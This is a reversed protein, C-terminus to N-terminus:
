WTATFEVFLHQDRARAAPAQDQLQDPLAGDDPHLHVVTYNGEVVPLPEDVESTPTALTLVPLSPCVCGLLLVAAFCLWAKKM